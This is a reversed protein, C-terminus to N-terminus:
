PRQRARNSQPTPGDRKRPDFYERPRFSESVWAVVRFFRMGHGLRIGEDFNKVVTGSSIGNAHPTQCRPTLTMDELVILIEHAQANLEGRYLERELRLRGIVLVAPEILEGANERIGQGIVPAHL